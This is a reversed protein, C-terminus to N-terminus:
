GADKIIMQFQDHKDFLYEKFIEFAIRSKKIGVLQEGFLGVNSGILICGTTDKVSNGRHFLIGSRGPIDSVLYTMGFKRSAYKTCLYKGTPICSINPANGLNPPELTFLTLDPRLQFVGFVGANTKAFRTLYYTTVPKIM